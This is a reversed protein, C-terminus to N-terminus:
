FPKKTTKFGLLGTFFPSVIKQSIFSCYKNVINVTLPNFIYLEPSLTSLYLKKRYEGRSNGWPFARGSVATFLASAIANEADGSGTGKRREPAKLAMMM